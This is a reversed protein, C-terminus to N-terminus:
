FGYRPNSDGERRWERLIGMLMAQAIELFERRLYYNLCHKSNRPFVDM